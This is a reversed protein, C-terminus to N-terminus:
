QKKLIIKFLAWWGEYDPTELTSENIIFYVNPNDLVANTNHFRITDGNLTYSGSFNTDIPSYNSEINAPILLKGSVTSNENFQITLIGGHALIDVGTDKIGPETFTTAKFLGSLGSNDYISVSDDSCYIITLTFFMIFIPNLLKKM